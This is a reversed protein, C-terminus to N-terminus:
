SESLRYSVFETTTMCKKLQAPTLLRSVKEKSLGTRSSNFSTYAYTTGYFTGLKRQLRAHIKEAEAKLSAMEEQIEVLRDIAECRLEAATPTPPLYRPM